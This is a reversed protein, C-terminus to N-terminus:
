RQAFDNPDLWIPSSVLSSFCPCPGPGTARANPRTIYDARVSLIRSKWVVNISFLPVCQHVFFEPDFWLVIRPWDAAYM